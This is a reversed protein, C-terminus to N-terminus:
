LLKRPKAKGTIRPEEAPPQPEAKKSVRPKKPAPAAAQTAVPPPAYVPVPASVVPTPLKPAERGMHQFQMINPKANHEKRIIGPFAENKVVPQRQMFQM